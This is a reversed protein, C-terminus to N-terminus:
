IRLDPDRTAVRGCADLLWSADNMGDGLGRWLLLSFVATIVAWFVNYIDRTVVAAVVFVLTGLPCLALLSAWAWRSARYHLLGM